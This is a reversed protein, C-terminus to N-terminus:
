RRIVASPYVNEEARKGVAIVYVVLRQEIVEYVLRYGARRLKFKYTNKLEGHLKASPVHPQVLRKALQIKFQQQLTADLRRWDKLALTHFALSYSTM